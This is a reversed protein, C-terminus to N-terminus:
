WDMSLGDEWLGVSLRTGDIQHTQELRKQERSLAYSCSVPSWLGFGSEDLYKLWIEGAAAALKLTELEAQKM